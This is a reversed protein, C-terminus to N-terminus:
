QVLTYFECNQSILYLMGVSLSNTVDESTTVDADRIAYLTIDRRLLLRRVILYIYLINVMILYRAAYSRRDINSM